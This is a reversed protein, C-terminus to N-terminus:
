NFYKTNSTAKMFKTLFHSDKQAGVPTISKINEPLEKMKKHGKIHNKAYLIKSNVLPNTSPIIKNLKNKVFSQPKRSIPSKGHKNFKLGSCNIFSGSDNKPNIRQYKTNFSHKELSKDQDQSNNAQFTYQKDPNPELGIEGKQIHQLNLRHFLRQSKYHEREFKCIKSYTNRSVPGKITLNTISSSDECNKEEKPIYRKSSKDYISLKAGKSLMSTLSRVQDSTKRVYMMTKKHMRFNIKSKFRGKKRLFELEPPESITSDETPPEFVRSAESKPRENKKLEVKSSKTTFSQISPDELPTNMLCSYTIPTKILQPLDKDRVSKGILMRGKSTTTVLCNSQQALSLRKFHLKEMPTLNDHPFHSEDIRKKIAILKERAEKRRNIIERQKPFEDVVPETKLKVQKVENTHKLSRERRNWGQSSTVSAAPFLHKRPSGISRTDEGQKSGSRKLPSTYIIRSYSKRLSDTRKRRIKKRKPKRSAVKKNVILPKAMLDQPTQVPELSEPDQIVGKQIFIKNETTKCGLTVAHSMISCVDNIIVKPIQKDIEKLTIYYNVGYLIESIIDESIFLSEPKNKRRIRCNKM